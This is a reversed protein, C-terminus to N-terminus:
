SEAAATEATEPLCYAWLARGFDSMVLTRRIYKLRHSTQRDLAMVKTDSELVQYKVDQAKDEASTEVLGLERLHRVYEPTQDALRAQCAKGVASLNEALRHTVVGMPNAVGVHVLAYGSGDSLASLIRVEDPVLQRLVRTFLAERAQKAKQEGAEALMAMLLQRASLSQVASPPAGGVAAEDTESDDDPVYGYPPPLARGGDLRDLRSKLLRMAQMEAKELRQFVHESGPVRDAVQTARELLRGLRSPAALNDQKGM